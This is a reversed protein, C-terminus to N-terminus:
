RFGRPNSADAASRRSLLGALRATVGPHLESVDYSEGPDRALDFLWPGLALQVSIPQPAWGLPLPRRIHYKFSGSRVAGLLSTWYFYLADHSTPAGDSLMPLMDRGDIERDEPLAVGALALLTPFIDIGMAMESRVAGAPLAGPWRAIFPVRFGGDFLDTKRGRHIGPSGQFWPGNDSTAIVLTDDEIGWKRLAALLQGVSADLDEVVDGYRGAPSKGRQEASPHLPRHPFTHPLYLFFPGDRHAEIFALAARTYRATLTSQDVPDAEVIQRDRYYPNPAQDNSALLGEFSDFGRDNPLAPASLGLHWKGFMGTAYGSARLVEALTIEELPLHTAGGAARQLEYLPIAPVPSAVTGGPTMVVQTMRTRIPYRGTLIGARAPSCVPAPSYYDTLRVGAAAMADLNPTRIARSGYSGLDGLGLDDFLILIVNPRRAGPRPGAKAVAELYAAKSAVRDSDDIQEYRASALHIWGVLALLVGAVVLASVLVGLGM